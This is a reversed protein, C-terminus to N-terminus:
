STAWLTGGEQSQPRPILSTRKDSITCCMYADTNYVRYHALLSHTHKMIM